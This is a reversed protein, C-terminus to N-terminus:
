SHLLSLFGNIKHSTYSNIQYYFLVHNVNVSHVCILNNDCLELDCCLFNTYINSSSISPIDTLLRKSIGHKHYESASNMCKPFQKVNKKTNLSEASIVTHSIYVHIKTCHLFDSTDGLHIQTQFHLM